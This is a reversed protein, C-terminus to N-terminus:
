CSAMRCALVAGVEKPLCFGVVEVVVLLCRCAGGRGRVM